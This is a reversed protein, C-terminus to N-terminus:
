DNSCVVSRQVTSWSTPLIARQGKYTATSPEKEAFKRMKGVLFIHNCSKKFHLNVIKESIFRIGCPLWFMFPNKLFEVKIDPRYGFRTISIRTSSWWKPWMVFNPFIYFLVRTALSTLKKSKKFDMVTRVPWQHYNPAKDGTELEWFLALYITAHADWRKRGIEEWTKEEEGRRWNWRCGIDCWM